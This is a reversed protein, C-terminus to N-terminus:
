TEGDKRDEGHNELDISGACRSIRKIPGTRIQKSKLEFLKERNEMYFDFALLAVQDLRSEFELLEGALRGDQLEGDLNQRVTEKLQFVFAVAQSPTFDQVSRIKVFYSLHPAIKEPDFSEILAEFLAGLDQAITHGVPNQFRDLEKKLFRSADAPYSSHILSSWQKLIAPKKKYLLENLNM